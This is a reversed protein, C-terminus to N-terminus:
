STRLMRNPKSILILVFEFAYPLEFLIYTTELSKSGVANGLSGEWGALLAPPQTISKIPQLEHKSFCANYM